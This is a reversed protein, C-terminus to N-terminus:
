VAKAPLSKATARQGDAWDAPPFSVFCDGHGPFKHFLGLVTGGLDVDNSDQHEGCDEAEDGEQGDEEPLDFHISLAQPLSM